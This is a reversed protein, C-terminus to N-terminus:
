RRRQPYIDRGADQIDKRLQRREDPSLRQARQSENGQNRSPQQFERRPQYEGSTQRKGENGQNDRAIVTPVALITVLMLVASRAILRKFLAKM